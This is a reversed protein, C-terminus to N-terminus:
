ERKINRYIRKVFVSSGVFGVTGIFSHLVEERTEEMDNKWRKADEEEKRREMERESDNRLDNKELIFKDGM